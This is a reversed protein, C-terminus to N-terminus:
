AGKMITPENEAFLDMQEYGVNPDFKQILHTFSKASNIHVGNATDTHCDISALYAPVPNPVDDKKQLNYRGTEYITITNESIEWVEYLRRYLQYLDENESDKFCEAFTELPLVSTIFLLKCCIHKNKYRAAVDSDYHPDILRILEVFSYPKDPRLDDLIVCDEQKYEDFPNSGQSSIYLSLGNEQAFLMAATTKGVGSCGTIFITKMNRHHGQIQRKTHERYEWAKQMDKVHRAYEEPLVHLNYNEPTIIGAACDRIIEGRRTELIGNALIAPVDMNGLIDAVDYQHKEPFGRHLYYTLVHFQSNRRAKITSVSNPKIGFWTAFEQISVNTNGFRCYLHFHSKKPTGDENTDKDHLIFAFEKISSYQKCIKKIETATMGDEVYLIAELQKPM